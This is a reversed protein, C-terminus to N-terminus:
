NGHAVEQSMAEDLDRAEDLSLFKELDHIFVLGDDLKVVGQIQELGPVIQAPDIIETPPLEVVGQAEDVVLVVTRRVTQAILFQDAPSIEREPLLLRRRVNLVPLVRGEMDIVGLVIAPAKPLATVETAQVIREVVVLPLAYRQEALRFVVLQTLNSMAFPQCQNKLPKAVEHRQPRRLKKSLGAITWATHRHYMLILDNCKRIYGTAPILSGSAPAPRCALLKGLNPPELDEVPRLTLPLGTTEGFAREYDKIESRSLQDILQSNTILSM